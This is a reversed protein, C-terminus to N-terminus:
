MWWDRAIRSIWLTPKRIKLRRGFKALHGVRFFKLDVGVDSGFSEFVCHHNKWIFTCALTPKLFLTYPYESAYYTIRDPWRGLNGFVITTRHRCQDLLHQVSVM